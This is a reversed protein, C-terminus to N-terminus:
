RGAVIQKEFDCGTEFILFRQASKGLSKGMGYGPAEQREEADQRARETHARQRRIKHARM